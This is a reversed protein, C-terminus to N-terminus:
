FRGGGIGDLAFECADGFPTTKADAPATLVKVVEPTVNIIGTYKFGIVASTKNDKIVSNVDLRVHKADPDQRIFDSGHLWIADVKIPYNAESRLYSDESTFPVVTLPAGKAVAGAMFPADLVVQKFHNNSADEPQTHPVQLPTFTNAHVPCYM